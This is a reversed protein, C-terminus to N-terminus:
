LARAPARPQLDLASRGPAVDPGQPDRHHRRHLPAASRRRRPALAPATARRASATGIGRDVRLRAGLRTAARVAVVDANDWLYLLEADQYRYNTNVPVLAAKFSGVVSELYEPGNYLYQAVKDQRTVGREVLAAALNSARRDLDAWTTSREGQAQAPAGPHAQAVAEMIDALNWGSM